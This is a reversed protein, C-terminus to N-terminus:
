WPEAGQSPPMARGAENISQVYHKSCTGTEARSCFREHGFCSLGIRCRAGRDPLVQRSRMARLALSAADSCGVAVPRCFRLTRRLNLKRSNISLLSRFGKAQAHRYRRYCTNVIIILLPHHFFESICDGQRKTRHRKARQGLRRRSRTRTGSGTAAGAGGSARRGAARRCAGAGRRRSCGRM